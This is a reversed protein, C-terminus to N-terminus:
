LALGLRYIRNANGAFMARREDDSFDTTLADYASLTQDFGGFLKDTPFDSAVMVRDPGFLEITRLVYDRVTDRDWPRFAFGMGSLKVAVHPLAALAAMGGAWQAMGDPDSPVAMGAHNVIVPTDSHRAILAALHAFQGPYAQLDFSLNCKALAAYGREWAPDLTVDRPTYSRQPDRHWNVIHRIGRVKPHAAHAALLAEVGPDDLAAFAVIADPRGDAVAMAQLWRTEDLAHRPDAGADVHVIGRVDWNAADRHYDGLLYTKAIAAVSGNPGDDGFPPTLWPYALRDLDWLHVHADIFPLM